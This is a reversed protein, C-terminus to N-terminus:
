TYNHIITQIYIYIYIDTIDGQQVTLETLDLTIGKGFMLVATLVQFASWKCFASVNLQTTRIYYAHSQSQLSNVFELLTLDLGQTQTSKLLM